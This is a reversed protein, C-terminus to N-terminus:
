PHNRVHGGLTLHQGISLAEAAYKDALAYPCRVPDIFVPVLSKMGEANIVATKGSDGQTNSFSFHAPELSGVKVEWIWVVDGRLKRGRIYAGNEKALIYRVILHPGPKILHGKPKNTELAVKIELDRANPSCALLDPFTHPKNAKFAGNSAESIGSRFLNGIIASLNALEVLTALKNGVNTETLTKDIRDIIDHTYQIAKRIMAADLGFEKLRGHPIIFGHVSQGSMQDQLSM